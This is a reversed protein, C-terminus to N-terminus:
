IQLHQITLEVALMRLVYHNNDGINAFRKEPFIAFIINEPILEGKAKKSILVGGIEFIPGRYCIEDPIIIGKTFGTQYEPIPTGRTRYNPFM